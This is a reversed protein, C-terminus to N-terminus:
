TFRVVHTTWRDYLETGGVRLVLAELWDAVPWGSEPGRGDALCWPTRGAAAMRNALAVLEDMTRPVEYGAERFARPSYWVLGKLEFSLPLWYLASGITAENAPPCRPNCLEQRCSAVNGEPLVADIVAEVGEASPVHELDCEQGGVRVVQRCGVLQVSHERSDSLCGGLRPPEISDCAPKRTVWGQGFM